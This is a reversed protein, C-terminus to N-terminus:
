ASYQSPTVVARFLLQPVVLCPVNLALPLSVTGFFVASGAVKKNQKVLSPQGTTSSASSDPHAIELLYINLM